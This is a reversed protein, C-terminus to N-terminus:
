LLNNYLAEEPKFGLFVIFNVSIRMERIKEINNKRMSPTDAWFSKIKSLAFASEITRAEFLM